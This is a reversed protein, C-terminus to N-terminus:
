QMLLKKIEINSTQNAEMKSVSTVDIVMNRNELAYASMEIAASYLRLVPPEGRGESFVNEAGM